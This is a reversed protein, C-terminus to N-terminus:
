YRYTPQYSTQWQCDTLNRGLSPCNPFGVPSVLGNCEVGRLSLSTDPRRGTGVAISIGSGSLKINNIEFDLSGEGDPSLIKIACINLGHASIPIPIQYRFTGCFPNHQPENQDNDHQGRKSLDSLELATQRRDGITTTFLRNWENVGSLTAAGVILLPSKDGTSDM